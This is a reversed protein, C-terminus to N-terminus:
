NLSLVAISHLVQCFVFLGM